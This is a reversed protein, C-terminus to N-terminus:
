ERGPLPRDQRIDREWLAPDPIQCLSGRAAIKALAAAMRSGQTDETSPLPVKDLITVRVRVAESESVQQPTEGSWEIRNDRLVGEYSDHM